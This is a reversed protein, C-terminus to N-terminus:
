SVRQTLAEIIFNSYPPEKPNAYSPCLMPNTEVHAELNGVM